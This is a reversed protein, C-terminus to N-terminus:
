ALNRPAFAQARVWYLPGLFIFSLAHPFNFLALILGWPCLNDGPGWCKYNCGGIERHQLITICNFLFTWSKMKGDKILLFQSSTCDHVLAHCTHKMSIIKCFFIFLLSICLCLYTNCNWWLKVWWQVITQRKPAIWAIKSFQCHM